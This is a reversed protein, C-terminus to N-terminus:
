AALARASPGLVLGGKVHDRPKVEVVAGPVLCAERVRLSPDHLALGRGQLFRALVEDGVRPVLEQMALELHVTDAEFAEGDVAFGMHHQEDLLQVGDSWVQVMWGLCPEQTLPARLLADGVTAGRVSRRMSGGPRPLPHRWRRPRTQVPRARRTLLRIGLSTALWSGIFVVMATGRLAMGSLAASATAWLVVAITLATSSAAGIWVSRHYGNEDHRRSDVAEAERYALATSQRRLDIWAKANCAPCPGPADGDEGDRRMPDASVGEELWGCADCLFFCPFPLRDPVGGDRKAVARLDRIRPRAVRHRALEREARRMRSIADLVAGATGSGM